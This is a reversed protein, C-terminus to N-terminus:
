VRKDRESIFFREYVDRDLNEELLTKMLTDTVKAERDVMDLIFPVGRSAKPVLTYVLNCILPLYKKQENLIDVGIVNVSKAPRLFASSLGELFKNSHTEKIFLVDKYNLKGYLIERDFVLSDMGLVDPIIRTKIDKIVGCLIVNKEIALSRLEKWSEGADIKYRILGGDMLLVKPRLDNIAKIGTEVEIKALRKTSEAEDEGKGDLVPSFVDAMEVREGGSFIGVARFIQVYHPYAGGQRNTSGDIACIAGINKLEKESLGTLTDFDCAESLARQFDEDDMQFISDYKTRIKQNLDSIKETLENIM